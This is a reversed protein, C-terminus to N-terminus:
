VREEDAVILYDRHAIERDVTTLPDHDEVVVNTLFILAIQDVIKNLPPM